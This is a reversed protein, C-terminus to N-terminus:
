NLFAAAKETEGRSLLVLGAARRIISQRLLRSIPLTGDEQVIPIPVYLAKEVGTGMGFFKIVRKGNEDHAFVCVPKMRTGQTYHNNQMMDIDSGEGAIATVSRNWEFLKLSVIRLFDDPITLLGTNESEAVILDGEETYIFEDDTDVIPEDGSILETAMRVPELMEVPATETVDRAAEPLKASIIDDLELNDSNSQIYSSQDANEDLAIRVDRILDEMSVRTM